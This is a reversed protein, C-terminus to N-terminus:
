WRNAAALDAEEMRQATNRLEVAIEEILQMANQFGPRLEEFRASYAKCAEGEWVEQLQTLLSDMTKNVEGVTESQRSYQEALNRVENPEIRISM